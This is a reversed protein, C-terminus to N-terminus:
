IRLDRADAEQEQKAVYLYDGESLVLRQAMARTKARHYAQRRADTDADPMLEYFRKRVQDEAGGTGIAEVLRALGGSGGTRVATALIEEVSATHRAVLSTVPDGDSDEGLNVTQLAFTVPQYRDGDKQKTCEVTALMEKEDRHVGFLFDANAVLTSSGRPRETASHGTHHVVIVTAGFPERLEANLVRLYASVDQASNEEGSFTQSMTDVVIDSPKVKLAAVAERLQAAQTLLALPVIVVRMPCRRWDMNRTRHWAEIRRMLGAGGEAAIYVPVGQATRRGLWPLGYCRHLAYDLAVFSKFTGSAGFFMGIADEPIVGKVAWRQAQHRAHLEEVSLLLGAHEAPPHAIGQLVSIVSAALEHPKAGPKSAAEAMREAIRGLQRRQGAQAVLRAASHVGAVSASHMLEVVHEFGGAADLRDGRELREAVTLANVEDGVEHADLIGQYITRCASDEFMEVLVTQRVIALHQPEQMLAGVLAQEATVAIRIPTPDTVHDSQM